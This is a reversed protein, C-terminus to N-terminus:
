REAAKRHESRMIAVVYSLKIRKGITTVSTTTAGDRTNIGPPNALPIQWPANALPRKGTPAGCRGVALALKELCIKTARDISMQHEGRATALM